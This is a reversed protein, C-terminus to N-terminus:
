SRFFNVLDSFWIKVFGLYPVRGYAKGIVSSYLVRSEDLESDRILSPNNDGKTVFFDDELKVVRHIIPYAKGSQFVVVDGVDLVSAGRILIIDGKNFGNRLPFSSFEDFSINNNLYWSGCVVWWSELDFFGSEDVSVGCISNLVGVDSARHEMSPSIVAVLPLSSGVILSLLPYFVFKVIIFALVVNVLWSLLSDDHWIFFWVRSLFSKKKKRM